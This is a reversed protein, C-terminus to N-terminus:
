PEDEGDSPSYISFHDISILITIWRHTVRITYPVPTASGNPGILYGGLDEPDIDGRPMVIALTCSRNFELGEPGFRIQVSPGSGLVAMGIKTRKDLARPPVTFVVLTRDSLISIAGGWSGITREKVLPKASASWKGLRLPSLAIGAGGPIRVSEGPAQLGEAVALTPEDASPGTPLDTTSCGVMLGLVALLGVACYLPTRPAIHKSRKM